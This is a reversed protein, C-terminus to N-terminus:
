DCLGKGKVIVSAVRKRGDDIVGGLLDVVTVVTGSSSKSLFTMSEFFQSPAADSDPYESM